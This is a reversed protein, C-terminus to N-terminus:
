DPRRQQGLPRVVHVVDAAVLLATLENSSRRGAPRATGASIAPGSRGQMAQMATLVALHSKYLPPAAPRAPGPRLQSVSYNVASQASSSM